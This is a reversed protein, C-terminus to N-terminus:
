QNVTVIWLHSNNKFEYADCLNPFHKCFTHLLHAQVEVALLFPLVVSSRALETM